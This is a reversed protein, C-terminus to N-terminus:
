ALLRMWPSWHPMAAVGRSRRLEAAPLLSSLSRQLWARRWRGGQGPLQRSLLGEALRGTSDAPPPPGAALEGRVPSGQGAQEAAMLSDQVRETGEGCLLMQSVPEPRQSTADQGAPAARSSSEQAVTLQAQQVALEVLLASALVLREQASSCLRGAEGAVGARQCVPERGGLSLGTPSLSSAPVPEPAGASDPDSGSCPGGGEGWVGQGPAGADPSPPDASGGGPLPEFPEQGGSRGPAMVTGSAGSSEPAACEGPDPGEREVGAAAGGEGSSCGVGNLGAAGQGDAVLVPRHAPLAESASATHGEGVGPGHCVAASQGEVALCARDASGTASEGAPADTGVTRDADLCTGGPLVRAPVPISGETRCTAGAARLAGPTAAAAAPDGPATGGAPRRGVAGPDPAEGDCGGHGVRQPAVAAAVSEGGTCSRCEAQGMGAGCDQCSTPPEAVSEAARGATTQTAEQQFASGRCCSGQEGAAAAPSPMGAEEQPVGSPPPGAARPPGAVLSLTGDDERLAAGSSAASPFEVEEEKCQGTRERGSCSSAPGAAAAKISSGGRPTGVPEKGRSCGDEEPCAPVVIQIAELDLPAPAAAERGAAM